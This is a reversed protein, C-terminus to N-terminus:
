INTITFNHYINKLHLNNRKTNLERLPKMSKMVILVVLVLTNINDNYDSCGYIFSPINKYTLSM